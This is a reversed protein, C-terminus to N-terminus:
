QETVVVRLTGPIRKGTGTTGATPTATITTEGPSIATLVWLYTSVTAVAPNSSTFDAADSRSIVGNITRPWTASEGDSFNLTVTLQVTEGVVLSTPGNIVATVDRKYMSPTLLDDCGTVVVASALFLTTSLYKRIMSLGRILQRDAHAHSPIGSRRSSTVSGSKRALPDLRKFYFRVGVAGTVLSPLECRRHLRCGALLTSAGSGATGPESRRRAPLRPPVDRGPRHVAVRLIAM